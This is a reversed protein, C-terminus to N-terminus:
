RGRACLARSRCRSAVDVAMRRWGTPGGQCNELGQGGLLRAAEEFNPKAATLGVERFVELRRSDAVIVRPSRSQLETLTWRVRPTLIGYGYDSVIVADCVPFVAQPKDILRREADGSLSESSGQDFRLLLRSSALVRQKILTRRGKGAIVNDTAIGRETLEQGLAEAEADDGTVSLFHVRGGLAHVNVATNAAGGPIETRGALAVVPVPAEPCFRRVAGDLYVDLMAEGVVAVSLGAIADTWHVLDNSM